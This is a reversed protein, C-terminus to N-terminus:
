RWTEMDVSVSDEDSSLLVSGEDISAHLSMSRRALGALAQASAPDVSYVALERIREAAASVGQWWVKSAHGGYCFVVVRRSKGAAQLLRREDPHGLDIWTQIEGTLDKQWLSPEDTTSLGRTFALNEDAYLAFALVRLMMREDTESPHRALTLAHSGYYGRQMDAVHLDLKFITARLAM